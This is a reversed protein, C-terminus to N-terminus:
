RNIASLKLKSNAFFTKLLLYFAFSNYAFYDVEINNQRYEGESVRNRKFSM